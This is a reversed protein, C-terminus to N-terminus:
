PRWNGPPKGEPALSEVIVEVHEPCILYVSKGFEDYDLGWRWGRQYAHTTVPDSFIWADCGAYYDCDFRM